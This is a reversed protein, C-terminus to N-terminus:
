APAKASGGQAVLDWRRRSGCKPNESRSSESAKLPPTNPDSYGEGGLEERVCGGPGQTGGGEGAFCGQSPAEIFSWGGAEKREGGELLFFVFIRFTWWPM